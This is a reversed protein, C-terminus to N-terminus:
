ARMYEKMRVLNNELSKRPSESFLIEFPMKIVKFILYLIYSMAFVLYIIAIVLRKM